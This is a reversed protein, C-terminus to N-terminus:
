KDKVNSGGSFVLEAVGDSTTYVNDSIEKISNYRNGLLIEDGSFIVNKCSLLNSNKVNSDVLLYDCARYKEPLKAIDSRSTVFLVTSGNINLYQYTVSDINIVELTTHPNLNITFHCDDSFTKIKDGYKALSKKDTNNDYVLINSVDFEPMLQPLYKAYKLKTNPIIISDISSFDGSIDEIVQYVSGNTGGCSIFSINSGCEVTATVGSGVNYIKLTTSNNGIIAYVAWGVTLVVASATVACRVYFGKAKVAYGIIVLLATFILWIYFYPKDSNVRSYPIAAFLSIIRLLLNGLIDAGLAFTYAFFSIIPCLYILSALMACILVVSVIPEAFFSTLVVFPSVRHFAITTIPIIWLSASASVSILNLAGRILKHKGTLHLKRSLYIEIKGAWLIIGATASFSLLMGIDGVAFPNFLTLVIAAAGLSNLGDTRRFVANSCYTLILMIGSRVVSPTFGTVAMFCFVIALIVSALAYRNKIINKLLFLVFGVIIALHMGSVVILFSTGTKSFDAKIDDSLAKKDGLLVAKCLSSTNQPLLSDLSSKMAKRINVAVSYLSFQKEGTSKFSDNEEDYFASLYIGKSLNYGNEAKSVTLKADIRDFDECKLDVTSILRIKVNESNGNIKDASILYVYSNENKQIEDCIYGEINLERESYNNIVPQYIYNSYLIIAICAAFSTLGVTILLDSLSKKIRIKNKIVKFFIGVFASLASLIIVINTFTGNAFYFVASLVSLYTLGVTALLRKMFKM